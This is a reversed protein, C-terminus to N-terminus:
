LCLDPGSDFSYDYLSSIIAHWSESMDDIGEIRDFVDTNSDYAGMTPGENNILPRHLLGLSAQAQCGGYRETITQLTLLATKPRINPNM